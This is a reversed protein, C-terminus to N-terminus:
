YWWERGVDSLGCNYLTEVNETDGIEVWDFTIKRLDNVSNTTDTINGTVSILWIRGDYFKLIKPKRNALWDKLKNRYKIGGSIDITNDDQNFKIFVGTTTGSDYNAIGNSSVNAYRNNLLSLASANINRTSDLVDLNYLTGYINDKDCIYLGNFESKIEKSVYTNEIGNCVSVVMYEYDVHSKRFYDKINIKFDSIVDIKKQYIPIWNLTGSERCKVLMYDTNRLSFGSNGADLTEDDFTANLVTDYDWTDYGNEVNLDPNKSVFLHDFTGNEIYINKIDKATTPSPDLTYRSGFFTTGLFLM